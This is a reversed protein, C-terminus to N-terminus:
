PSVSLFAPIPANSGGVGVAPIELREDQALDANLPNGATAQLADGLQGNVVTLQPHDFPARQYRVREDTLSLLFNSLDTINQETTTLTSFGALHFHLSDSTFNGHRSYFEIVQRLTAVAMKSGSLNALATAPTPIYATV